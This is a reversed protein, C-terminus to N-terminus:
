VREEISLDIWYCFFKVCNLINVVFLVEKGLEVFLMFFLVFGLMSVFSGILLMVGGNDGVGVVWGCLDIGVLYM